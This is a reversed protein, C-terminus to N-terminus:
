HITMEADSGRFTINQLQPEVFCRGPCHEEEAIFRYNQIM